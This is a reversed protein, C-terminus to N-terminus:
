DQEDKKGCKNIEIIMSKLLRKSGKIKTWSTTYKLVDDVDIDEIIRILAKRAEELPISLIEAM